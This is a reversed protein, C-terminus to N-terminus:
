GKLTPRGQFVQTTGALRPNLAREKEFWAAKTPVESPERCCACGPCCAVQEGPKRDSLDTWFTTRERCFCCREFPPESDPEKRTPITM